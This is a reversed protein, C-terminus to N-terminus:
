PSAGQVSLLYTLLDGRELATCNRGLVDGCNRRFWKDVKAPNTFRAPNVGPAFPAIAKGTVAHRGEQRPDATHCSSCSWDRPRTAYLSRGRAASFALGGAEARWGDLLEQPVAAHTAAALMSATVAAVASLRVQQIM